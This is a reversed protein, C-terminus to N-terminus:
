KKRSKKKSPQAYSPRKKSVSVRVLGQGRAAAVTEALISGFLLGFIVTKVPNDYMTKVM